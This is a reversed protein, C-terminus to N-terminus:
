KLRLNVCLIKYKFQIECDELAGIFNVYLNAISKTCVYILIPNHIKDSIRFTQLAISYRM